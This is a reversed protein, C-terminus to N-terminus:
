IGSRNLPKRRRTCSCEAITVYRRPLTERQDRRRSRHAIGCTTLLDMSSGPLHPLKKSPKGCPAIMTLGAKLPNTSNDSPQLTPRSIINICGYNNGIREYHECNPPAKKLTRVLESDEANLERRETFPVVLGVRETAMAIAKDIQDYHILMDSETYILIHADTQSAGRNYAASRNFPADGTRSDDAVILPAPFLSWHHVVRELNAARLPDGGRDRFPVIIAVSNVPVPKM